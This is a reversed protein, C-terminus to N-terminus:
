DTYEDKFGKHRMSQLKFQNKCFQGSHFFSILASVFIVVPSVLLSFGHQSFFIAKTEMSRFLCGQTLRNGEPPQHLIYKRPVQLKQKSALLLLNFGVILGENQYYVLVANSHTARTCM